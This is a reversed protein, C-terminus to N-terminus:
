RRKTFRRYFALIEKEAEAQTLGEFQGGVTADITGDGHIVSIPPTEPGTIQTDRAIDFDKPDHGPTIKLAGTGFEPEVRADAVIPVLRAGLAGSETVVHRASATACPTLSSPRPPTAWASARKRM